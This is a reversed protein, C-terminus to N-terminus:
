REIAFFTSFKGRMWYKESAESKSDQHEQEIEYQAKIAVLFIAMKPPENSGM